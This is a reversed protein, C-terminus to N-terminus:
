FVTFGILTVRQQFEEWLEMRIRDLKIEPENDGLMYLSLSRFRQALNVESCPIHTVTTPSSGNSIFDPFVAVFAVWFLDVGWLLLPHPADASM